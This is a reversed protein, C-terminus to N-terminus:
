AGVRVQNGGSARAGALASDALAILETISKQSDTQGAVGVSVTPRLVFIRQDDSEAAVPEAAISDRIRLARRRVEDEGVGPVLIGFEAGRLRGVQATPPMEDALIAAVTRLVTSAAEPGATEDISSFDDVEALVIALPTHTREARYAEVDAEYRWLVSPLAGSQADVRTQSVLQANMLYRQCLWVPPLALVLVVPDVAVVLAVTVSMSQEVLDSILANRGGVAEWLVVEPTALRIATLVLANNILWVLLSCGAALLLWTAAHAGTRPMPGAIVPPAAHFVASAAGYGLSVTAASFVRRYAFMRPIRIVRYASILLPALLALGPPFLIAIPLFWVGLLDRINTGRVERIGRTSEIVIVACGLLAAYLGVRPLSVRAAAVALATATLVLDLCVVTAVFAIAPPRLTWVAWKRVSGM